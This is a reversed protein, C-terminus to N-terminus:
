RGIVGYRIQYRLKQMDAVLYHEAQKSHPISTTHGEQTLSLVVMQTESMTKNFERGETRM